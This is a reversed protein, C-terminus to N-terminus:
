EIVVKQVGIGKVELLYIGASLTAVEINFNAQQTITGALQLQGDISWIQYTLSQNHRHLAYTEPLQVQLQTQAPNPYTLLQGRLTEEKLTEISTPPTDNCLQNYMFDQIFAVTTDYYAPANPNPFLNVNVFPTHGAGPHTHLAHTLGINECHEHISGSGHILVNISFLTILDHGYPVITDGTGHLSVIPIDNPAIWATDGIAGSMSIVGAVASSYGENGSQGELGGYDNMFDVLIDPIEEEKDLYATHIAAIAGASAGGVYIKNTDIRYTAAEKHFYRVAARMDHTGKAVAAYTSSDGPVTLIEPTLRYDIAACVYGRETYYGCLDVMYDDKRSGLIFAGGFALVILPREEMEDDTPQYLDLSLVQTAEPDAVTPQLAEGFQIDPLTDVGFIPAVYRISDCQAHLQSSTFALFFAFFLMLSLTFPSVIKRM